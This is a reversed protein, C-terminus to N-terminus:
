GQASMVKLSILKAPMLSVYLGMKREFHGAGFRVEKEVAEVDDGDGLAM